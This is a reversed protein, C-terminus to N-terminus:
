PLTYKLYKCPHYHLYINIVDQDGTIIKEFGDMILQVENQFEIERLRTLNMM